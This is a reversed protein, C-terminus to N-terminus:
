EGNNIYRVTYKSDVLDFDEEAIGPTLIVEGADNILIAEFSVSTDLYLEFAGAEGLIVVAESLADSVAGNNAWVAATVVGSDAPYGDAPDIVADEEANCVSIFGGAISYYAATVDGDEPSPVGIKFKGGDPKDGFVGISDGASVIGYRVDAASLYEMLRQAAFGEKIGDLDLKCGEETIHIKDSTVELLESSTHSLASTVDEASPEGDKWLQKVGGMTPSYAGGTATAMNVATSLASCFSEDAEMIMDVKNNLAYVLSGEDEAVFLKDCKSVLRGCGEGVSDFYSDDLREGSLSASSMRLTVYSDAGKIVRDTYESADGCASLCIILIITLVCCATKKM